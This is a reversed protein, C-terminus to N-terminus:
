IRVREVAKIQTGFAKSAAIQMKVPEGSTLFRDAGGKPLPWRQNESVLEEVPDIFVTEKSVYEKLLPLIAPYHTCALLLHSSTKLPALIGECQERLEPSSVDGSEIFASLPQAIRQKVSIGRRALARRYAGSLVTRRGGILALKVPRMKETVRAASEIVGEVKMAGLNLFPLVTSAANCGVILHTVGQAGLFPLVISLRSILQQRSM